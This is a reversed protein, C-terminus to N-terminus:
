WRVPELDESAAGIYISYCQPCKHEKDTMKRQKKILMAMSLTMGERNKFKVRLLNHLGEWARFLEASFQVREDLADILYIPEDLLGNLSRPIRDWIGLIEIQIISELDRISTKSDSKYELLKRKDRLVWWVLKTRKQSRKSLRKGFKNISKSCMSLQLM